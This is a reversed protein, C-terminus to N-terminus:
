AIVGRWIGFIWVRLGWWLRLVRKGGGSLAVKGADRLPKNVRGRLSQWGAQVRARSFFKRRAVTTLAEPARPEALAACRSFDPARTGLFINWKRHGLTCLATCLQRQVRTKWKGDRERPAPRRM